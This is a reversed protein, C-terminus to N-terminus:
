GKALVKHAEVLREPININYPCKPLCEGCRKCLDGKKGVDVAYERIASEKLGFDKYYHHLRFVWAIPIGVECPQCYGCNRCFGDGLKVVKERANKREAANMMPGKLAALGENLHGVTAVGPITVSVAPHSMSFRVANTSIKVNKKGRGSFVKGGITLMGGALAKMCVFGVNNKECYKFIRKEAAVNLINYPFMVAEYEGTAVAKYCTAEDHSTVGIHRVIGARQAKRAVQLSGNRGMAKNLVEDNDINKIYLLDIYDTKLRKLSDKLSKEAGARSHNSIKTSLYYQERVGSLAKGIKVESDGYLLHTDFYNIGKEFARWLVKEAAEDSVELIPIGGFGIRSVMMGTSGLKQYIM